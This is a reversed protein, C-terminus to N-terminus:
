GTEPLFSPMNIGKFPQFAGRVSCLHLECNKGGWEYIQRVLDHKEMPVIFIPARGRHQDLERLLLAAAEAEGRAVGPGVMNMGSHGCSILWGDLGGQANEIVSAHWCGLENKICYAYDHERCIGSVEMELAAMKPVDALVADRVRESGPLSRKLGGAPVPVFMDQYAYRPVFGARNYLSFSDINM